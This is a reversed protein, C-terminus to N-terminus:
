HLPDNIEKGLQEIQHDRMRKFLGAGTHGKKLLKAAALDARKEEARAHYTQIKGSLQTLLYFLTGAAMINTKKYLNKPYWKQFYNILVECSMVGSAVLATRLLDSAAFFNGLAHAAEHALIFDQEDSNLAHWADKKIVITKGITFFELYTNLFNFGEDSVVVKIDNPSSAGGDKLLKQLRLTVEHSEQLDISKQAKKLGFHRVVPPVWLGNLWSMIRLYKSLGMGYSGIATGVATCVTKASESLAPQATSQQAFSLFVILYILLRANYSKIM